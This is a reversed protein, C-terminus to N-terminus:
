GAAHRLSEKVLEELSLIKGSAGQLARRIAKEAASRNYGLSTLALLTQTRIETTAGELDTASATTTKGVKDRLELVLREATKKGINPISTLAGINGTSIRQRLDDVSTGSLIGQAIRPGIGSVSILLRFLAREEETAFGFLQLADERVHLYTFLNVPTNVAGIKEFTSLSISVAYGIGNVDISIETPAKSRLTGSLFAIM